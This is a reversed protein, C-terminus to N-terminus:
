PHRSFSFKKLIKLVGKAMTGWIFLIVPDFDKRGVIAKRLNM